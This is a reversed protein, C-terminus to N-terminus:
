RPFIQVSTSNLPVKHNLMVKECTYTGCCFHVSLKCRFVCWGDVPTLNDRSQPQSVNLYTPVTVIFIWCGLAQIHLLTKWLGKKQESCAFEIAFFISTGSMKLTYGSVQMYHICAYLYTNTKMWNSYGSIGSQLRILLLPM